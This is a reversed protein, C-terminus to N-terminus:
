PLNFTLVDELARRRLVPVEADPAPYGVPMLLYARENPPRRLLTALFAMPSPTHTLTVLGMHHIAAILMGAAIGVSQPVPEHSFHRTTRRRDLEAYFSRARELMQSPPLRTFSLPEFRAATM